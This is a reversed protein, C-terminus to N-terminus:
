RGGAKKHLSEYGHDAAPTSATPLGAQVWGAHGYQPAGGFGGLVNAVDRYGASSLIECAQASRGGMKCGVVLQTEPPFAARVVSLFEPNPGMMGSAPDMHLLPFNFAGEPHGAEFEPVSRVDLYTAGRAQEQHAQQVNIHKITMTKAILERMISCGGFGSV